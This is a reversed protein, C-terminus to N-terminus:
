PTCTTRISRCKKIQSYIVTTELASLIDETNTITSSAKLALGLHTPLEEGASQSLTLITVLARMQM